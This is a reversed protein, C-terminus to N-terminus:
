EESLPRAELNRTMIIGGNFMASAPLPLQEWQGLVDRVPLALARGKMRVVKAKTKEAREESYPENRALLVFMVERMKHAVGVIAKGM